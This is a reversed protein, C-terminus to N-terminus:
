TSFKSENVIPKPVVVSGGFKENFFTNKVLPVEVNKPPEIQKLNNLELAYAIAESNFNCRAQCAM